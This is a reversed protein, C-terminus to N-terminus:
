STEEDTAEWEPWLEQRAHREAQQEVYATVRALHSRSLSFAGYGEQWRFGDGDPLRENIAHSSGGKVQKALDAAWLKGPVRALLHLHDEVGDLALVTCGLARAEARVVDLALRRIDGTLRPERLRTAWVVHLYIETRSRRM